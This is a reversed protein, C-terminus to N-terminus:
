HAAAPGTPLQIQLAPDQAIARLDESPVSLLDQASREDTAEVVEEAILSWNGRVVVVQCRSSRASGLPCRPSLPV